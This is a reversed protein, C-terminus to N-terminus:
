GALSLESAAAEALVSARFQAPGCRQVAIQVVSVSAQIRSWGPAPRVATM